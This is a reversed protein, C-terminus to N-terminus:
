RLMVHRQMLSSKVFIKRHISVGYRQGAHGYTTPLVEGPGRWAGKDTLFPYKKIEIRWGTDDALHWHFRNLKHVAMRDIFRKVYEVTYFQRSVDLMMGRHQYAPYDKVLICPIDATLSPTYQDPKYVPQYVYPPLLQLLTQIAYFFGADDGASIEIMHNDVSLTYGESPLSRNLSFLIANADPRSKSFAPDIGMSPQVTEAFYLAAGKAM